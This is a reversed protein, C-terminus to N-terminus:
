HAPAPPRPPQLQAQQPQPQPQQQNNRQVASLASQFQQGLQQFNLRLRTQDLLTATAPGARQPSAAGGAQQEKVGLDLRNVINTIINNLNNLGQNITALARLAM